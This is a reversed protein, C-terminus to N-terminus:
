LFRALFRLEGFDSINVRVAGTYECLNKEFQPVEPDQTLFDSQLVDVVADIDEQKIEQRGYPIM